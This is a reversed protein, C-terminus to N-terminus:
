LLREGKNIRALIDAAVLLQVADGDIALLGAAALDRIGADLEDPEFPQDDFLDELPVPAFSAKRDPSWRFGLEFLRDLLGVSAPEPDDNEHLEQFPEVIHRKLAVWAGEELSGDPRRAPKRNRAQAAKKRSRQREKSM